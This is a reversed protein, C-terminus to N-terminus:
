VTSATIMCIAAVSTFPFALILKWSLLFTISYACYDVAYMTLEKHIPKKYKYCWLCQKLFLTGPTEILVPPRRFADVDAVKSM